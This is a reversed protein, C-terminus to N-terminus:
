NWIILRKRRIRDKKLDREIRAGLEEFFGSHHMEAWQYFDDYKYRSQVQENQSFCLEQALVESQKHNKQKKANAVVTQNLNMPSNSKLEGVSFAEHAVFTGSFVVAAACFLAAIPHRQIWSKETKKDHKMKEAALKHESASMNISYLSFIISFLVVKKLFM